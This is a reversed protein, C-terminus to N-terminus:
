IKWIFPSAVEISTASLRKRFYKNIKSLGRCKIRHLTTPWSRIAIQLTQKM